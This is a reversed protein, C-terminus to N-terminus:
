SSAAALGQSATDTEKLTVRIRKSSRISSRWMAGFKKPFSSFVGKAVPEEDVREVEPMNELRELLNVLASPRVLITIVAGWDWSGITQAISAHNHNDNDNLREELWCMFRLLQAANAPPPVVLEVAEKVLGECGEPSQKSWYVKRIVQALEVRTINKLLYSAAGVELAEVQYNVSEALMIVDGDYDVGNRKLRRTAEIGNMGPMWTDMLVIDASLMGGQSFAEEASAYDGAVEMDEEEELMRRLSHRTIEDDDVLIIRIDKNM